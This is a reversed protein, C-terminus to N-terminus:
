HLVTFLTTKPPFYTHLTNQTKLINHDNDSSLGYIIQFDHHLNNTDHLQIPFTLKPLNFHCWQWTYSFNYGTKWQRYVYFYFLHETSVNAMYDWILGKGSCVQHVKGGDLPRLPTHTHERLMPVPVFTYKSVEVVFGHFM